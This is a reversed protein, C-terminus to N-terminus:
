QKALHHVFEFLEEKPIIDLKDNHERIADDRFPGEELKNDEYYANRHVYPPQSTAIDRLNRESKGMLKVVM